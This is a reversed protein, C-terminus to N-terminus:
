LNCRDPWFRRIIDLRQDETNSILISPTTMTMANIVSHVREGIFLDLEGLLSKLDQANYENTINIIDEKNNCHNCIEQAIIRDDLNDAIGICHPIFLVKANFEKTIQDIVKALMKVHEIYSKKPDNLSPYAISAKERTVTMGVLVKESKEIGELKLINKGQNMPSPQLLFALDTTLFCNENKVKLKNYNLYSTSERLTILDVRNLAFRYLKALFQSYWVQKLEISGGM